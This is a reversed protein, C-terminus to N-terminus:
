HSEDNLKEKICDIIYRKNSFNEFLLENDNFLIKFHEELQVILTIIKMSNLGFHYLDQELDIPQKYRLVEGIIRNVVEDINNMKTSM